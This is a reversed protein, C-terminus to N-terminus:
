TLVVAKVDQAYQLGRFLDRLEAYSDFTLPNKREPRNLTITAVGDAVAFGFHRAPYDAYARRIERNLSM